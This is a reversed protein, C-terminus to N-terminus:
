KVEESPTQGTMHEHWAMFSEISTDGEDVTTSGCVACAEGIQPTQIECPECPAFRLGIRNGWTIVATTGGAEYLDLATEYLATTSESVMDDVFQQDTRM